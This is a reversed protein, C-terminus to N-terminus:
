KCMFRDSPTLLRGNCILQRLKDCARQIDEFAVCASFRVCRNYREGGFLAGPLYLLPETGAMALPRFDTEDEFEFPLVAWLYFTGQPPMVTFGCENLAEYLSQINQRYYSIDTVCDVPLRALIRHQLLPAHVVRMRMNLFLADRLATRTEEDAIGPHTAFYGIREGSLSLSKSWSNVRFLRPHLNILSPVEDEMFHITDYVADEIVYINIGYQKEKKAIIQALRKLEAESYIAGTPNNPSNIWIMKTRPRIANEIAEFDLRFTSDTHVIVPIGGNTKVINVYEVFYPAMIIVENEDPSEACPGGVDLVTKTIVDLAGTAGVTIRVDKPVFHADFRQNLNKAIKKCLGFPDEEVMYGHGNWHQNRIELLVEDMADYYALPPPLNPNGVTLNIPRTNADASQRFVDYISVAANEKANTKKNKTHM